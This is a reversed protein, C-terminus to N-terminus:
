ADYDQSTVNSHNSTKDIQSLYDLKIQELLGVVMLPPFEKAGGAEVVIEDGLLKIQLIIKEEM